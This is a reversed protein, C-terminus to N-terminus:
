AVGMAMGSPGKSRRAGIAVPPMPVTQRPRCRAWPSGTATLTMVTSFARSGRRTSAKWRSTRAMAPSSWGPM